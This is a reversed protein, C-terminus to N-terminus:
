RTPAITIGRGDASSTGTDVDATPGSLRGDPRIVYRRLGNDGLNVPLPAGPLSMSVSGGYAWLTKGTPSVDVTEMSSGGDSTAFPSGPVQKLSGNPQIAYAYIGGGPVYFFRSDPTFSSVHPLSGAKYPSGPAPKLAGSPTINYGSIDFGRENSVYLHRGDPSVNPYIPGMDTSFRERATLRGSRGIRFWAIQNQAYSAVYLNRGNPTIAGSVLGDLPSGMPIAPGNAVLHGAHVTYAQLQEDVLGLTMFARRGDKSFVLDVPDNPLSMPTGSLPRLAGKPQVSFISMKFPAGVYVYRGNPSTVVPWGATGTTWPGSKLRKVPGTDSASFGVVTSSGYGHTYVVYHSPSTTTAVGPTAAAVITVAATLVAVSSGAVVKRRRGRCQTRGQTKM